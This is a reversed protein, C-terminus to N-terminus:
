YMCHAVGVIKVCAKPNAGSDKNINERKWTKESLIKNTELFM